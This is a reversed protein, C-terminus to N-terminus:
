IGLGEHEILFGYVRVMLIQMTEPEVYTGSVYARPM